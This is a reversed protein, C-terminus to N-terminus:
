SDRQLKGADRLAGKVREACLEGLAPTAAKVVLSLRMSALTVSLEIICLGPFNRGVSVAASSSGEEQQAYFYYKSVGAVTGSAMCAFRAQSLLLAAFEKRALLCLAV